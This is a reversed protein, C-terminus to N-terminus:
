SCIKNRFLTAPVANDQGLRETTGATKARKGTGLTLQFINFDETYRKRDGVM